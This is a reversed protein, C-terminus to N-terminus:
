QPDSDRKRLIVLVAFVSLLLMAALVAMSDRFSHRFKEAGSSPDKDPYESELAPRLRNGKADHVPIVYSPLSHQAVDAPM